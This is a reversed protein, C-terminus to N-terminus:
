SDLDENADAWAAVTDLCVPCVWKMGGVIKQITLRDNLQKSTKDRDHLIITSEILDIGFEKLYASVDNAEIM